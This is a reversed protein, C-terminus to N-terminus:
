KAKLSADARELMAALSAGATWPQVAVNAALHLSLRGAKVPKATIADRLRQARSAASEEDAGPVIALFADADYRGLAEGPALSRLLLSSAERVMEGAAAAGLRSALADFQAIRLLVVAFRGGEHECRSAQRMLLEAMGEHNLLRSEADLRERRAPEDLGRLYEAQLSPPIHAIEAEAIASLDTLRALEEESFRRPKSDIVCLTGLPQGAPSRIVSGAYARVHPDGTVLPNDAFREDAAADEVVLVGGAAIAHACFAVERPTESAQLGHASKFWQRTDGVLSVMAMPTELVHSALRTIRDFREEAPSFLLGSEELAALREGENPIPPPQIM